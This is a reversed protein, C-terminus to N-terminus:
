TVKLVGPLNKQFLEKAAEYSEEAYDETLNLLLLKYPKRSKLNITIHGKSFFSPHKLEVEVVDGLTADLKKPCKDLEEVKRPNVNLFPKVKATLTGFFSTGNEEWCLGMDAKEKTVILRRDTLYIGHAQDLALVRRTALASSSFGGQYSEM